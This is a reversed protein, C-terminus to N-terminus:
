YLGQRQLARGYDALAEFGLCFAMRPVRGENRQMLPKAQAPRSKERIRGIASM